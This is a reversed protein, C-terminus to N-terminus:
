ILFSLIYLFIFSLFTIGWGIYWYILITRVNDKLRQIKEDECQVKYIYCMLKFTNEMGPGIKGFSTLERWTEYKNAKLYSKLEYIRIATIISTIFLYVFSIFFSILGFSILQM